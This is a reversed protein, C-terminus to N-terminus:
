MLDLIAMYNLLLGLYFGSFVFILGFTSFGKLIIAFPSDKENLDSNM